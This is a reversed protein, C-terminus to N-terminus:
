AVERKNEDQSMIYLLREIICDKIVTRHYSLEFLRKTGNHSKDRMARVLLKENQDLLKNLEILTLM